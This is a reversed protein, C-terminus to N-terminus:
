NSMLIWWGSGGFTKGGDSILWVAQGLNSLQLQNYLGDVLDQGVTNILVTLPSPDKKKIVLVQASVQNAGVGSVAAGSAPPLTVNAGSAGSAAILVLFSGTAGLAVRVNGGTCSYVSLNLVDITGTHADNWASPRVLSSDAVDQKQTVFRHLVPL